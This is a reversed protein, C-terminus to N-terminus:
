LNWFYIKFLSKRKGGDMKRGSESRRIKDM